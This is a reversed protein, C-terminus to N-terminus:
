FIWFWPIGMWIGSKGGIISFIINFYNLNKKSNELCYENQNALWPRLEDSGRARLPRHPSPYPLPALPWHCRRRGQPLGRGADSTPHARGVLHLETGKLPNPTATQPLSQLHGDAM